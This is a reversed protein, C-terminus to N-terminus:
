TEATAYEDSEDDINKEAGSGVSVAGGARNTGFGEPDPFDDWDSFLVFYEPDNKVQDFWARDIGYNYPAREPIRASRHDMDCVREYRINKKQQPTLLDFAIKQMDHLDDSMQASRWIPIMVELFQRDTDHPFGRKIACRTHWVAKSIDDDGDEPGSAEDSMYQEHVLMNKVVQPSVGRKAAFPVIAKELQKSKTVRRERLRNVKQYNKEKAAAAEDTERRWQVKRSRFSTKAMEFLLNHNWKFGLEDHILAPPLFEPKKILQSQVQEAVASFLSHNLPHAVTAEFVPNLYVEGTIENVRQVTLDPFNKGSHVGIVDNFTRTTISQVTAKAAKIVDAFETLTRPIESALDVVVKSRTPVPLTVHIEPEPAFIDDFPEEAVTTVSTTGRRAAKKKQLVTGRSPLDGRGSHSSQSTPEAELEINKKKLDKIEISMAQLLSLVDADDHQNHEARNPLQYGEGSRRFVDDVTRPNLSSSRLDPGMRALPLDAVLHVMSLKVPLISSLETEHGHRNDYFPAINLSTSRPYGPVPHFGAGHDRGRGRGGPQFQYGFEHGYEANAQTPGCPPDFVEDFSSQSHSRPGGGTRRSM